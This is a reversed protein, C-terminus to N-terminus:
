SCTRAADTRTCIHTHAYLQRRRLSREAAGPCGATSPSRPDRLRAAAPLQGAPLLPRRPPGPQPAPRQQTGPPLSQPAPASTLQELRLALQGSEAANRTNPHPSRRTGDPHTWLPSRALFTSEAPLGSRISTELTDITRNDSENFFWISLPSTPM